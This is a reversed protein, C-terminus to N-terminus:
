RARLLLAVLGVVSVLQGVWFAFAWKLLEVRDASMQERVAAFGSHMEGRLEGGLQALEVRLRSTEEVLRREFREACHTM